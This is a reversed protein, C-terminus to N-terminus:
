TLTRHYEVWWEANLISQGAAGRITNHGLITMKIGNELVPDRRIRGITVSMGSGNMRDLKPQPRMPDDTLVLTRAPSSPLEQCPSGFEHLVRKIEDFSSPIRELSIHADELHGELTPVRQCSASIPFRAGLIKLPESEVKEEEKSIFPLVNDIIDLSAVGPYGAGSLAQMTSVVVSRIGFADFLPKLALALIITTCNPNTVIFGKWGRNKQQAHVLKMHHANIETVVLPVDHEMRFASANSFVKYGGQAYRPELNRAEDAPLASFVVEIGEADSEGITSADRVVVNEVTKQMPTTLIWNTAEKYSKGASRVSALLAKIEFFPHNELLSVFRQGVTGTAGLIAVGIKNSM